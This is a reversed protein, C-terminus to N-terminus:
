LLSDGGSRRREGVRGDDAFSLTWFRRRVRCASFLSLHRVSLLIKDRAAIAM